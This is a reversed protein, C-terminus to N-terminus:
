KEFVRNLDRAGHLVRVIEVGTRDTLERYFVLYNSFKPVVWSRLEKDAKFRRLPGIQPNKALLYFSELIADLVRDAADPDEASILEHISDVDEEAIESLVFRGMRAAGRRQV